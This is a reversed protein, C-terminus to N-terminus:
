NQLHKLRLIKERVKTPRLQINKEARKNKENVYVETVEIPAIDDKFYGQEIARIAKQHSEYAFQDADARNINFQALPTSVIAIAVAFILAPM